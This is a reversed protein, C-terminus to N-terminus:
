KKKGAKEKKLQAVLGPLGTGIPIPQNIMVNEIVSRIKDVEGTLSANVVHKIPTEFSARALVSEKEGSIGGRTIGKVTGTHTMLESLFMVHRIDIDLGQNELVALCENMITQRAAEIGLVSHIEFLNNSLTLKPDIEKLKFVEKLNSGACQIIYKNDKKTPLVQTVGSIGRVIVEKAKQKLKYLGTLNGEEKSTELIFGKTTERVNADKLKNVLIELIESKKFKFDKVKQKDLSVEVASKMMNLSFESSIEQLTMQKIFSAIRRITKEDKTYEPKLYVTMTPTSPEKRADFIEILRPLGRTVQVEAVGAMHFVNLTMQTGPEGFSEATVIGVAEGPSILSNVYEERVDELVKKVDAASLSRSEAEKKVDEIIKGPLEEKYKEYIDAM